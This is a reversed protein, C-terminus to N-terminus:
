GLRTRVLDCKAGPARRSKKLWASVTQRSVGFVRELGRLSSREEYAKLLQEQEAESYARPEPNDGRVRGCDKCQYRQKGKPTRGDRSINESQCHSCKLTLTLM